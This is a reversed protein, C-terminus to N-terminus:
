LMYLMQKFSHSKSTTTVFILKQVILYFLSLIGQNSRFIAIKTCRRDRVQRIKQELLEAMWREGVIM